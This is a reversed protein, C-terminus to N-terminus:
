TRSNSAASSLRRPTAATVVEFPVHDITSAIFNVGVAGATEGSCCICCFIIVYRIGTIISHTIHVAGAPRSLM